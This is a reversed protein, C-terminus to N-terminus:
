RGQVNKKNFTIAVYYGHNNVLLIYLSLANFDKCTGASRWMVM